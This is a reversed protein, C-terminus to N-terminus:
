KVKYRGCYLRGSSGVRFPVLHLWAMSIRSCASSCRDKWWAFRVETCTDIHAPLSFLIIYICCPSCGLHIADMGIEKASHFCFIMEVGIVMIVKVSGMWCLSTHPHQLFCSMFLLCLCLKSLYCSGMELFHKCYNWNNAQPPPPSAIQFLYLYFPNQFTKWLESHSRIYWGFCHDRCSYRFSLAFGTRDALQSFSFNGWTWLVM